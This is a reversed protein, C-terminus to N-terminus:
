QDGGMTHKVIEQFQERAPSKVSISDCLEGREMAEAVRFSKETPSGVTDQAVTAGETPQLEQSIPGAQKQRLQM